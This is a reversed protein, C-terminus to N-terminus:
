LKQFYEVATKEFDQISMLELKDQNIRAIMDTTPDYIFRGKNQKENELNMHLLLSAVIIDPDNNGKHEHTAILLPITHEPYSKYLQKPVFSSFTAISYILLLFCFNYFNIKKHVPYAM